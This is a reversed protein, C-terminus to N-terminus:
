WNAIEGKIATITNAGNYTGSLTGAPISIGWWVTGTTPTPSTVKAINLEVETPTISLPTGSAYAVSSLYYRQQGVPITEGLCTPYNEFDTCM